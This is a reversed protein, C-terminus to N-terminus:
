AVDGVRKETAVDVTEVPGSQDECGDSLNRTRNTVYFVHKDSQIQHATDQNESGNDTVDSPLIPIIVRSVLKNATHDRVHTGGSCLKM